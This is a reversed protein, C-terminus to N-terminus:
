HDHCLDTNISIDEYDTINLHISGWFIGLILWNPYTSIWYASFMNLVLGYLAFVLFFIYLNDVFAKKYIHKEMKYFIISFLCFGIIGTEAM